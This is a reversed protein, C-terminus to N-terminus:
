LRGKMETGCLPCRKGVIGHLEKKYRELNRKAQCKKEKYEKLRYILEELTGQQNSITKQKKKLSELHGLSPPKRSITEMLLEGLKVIKSLNEAQTVLKLYVRGKHLANKSGTTLGRANDRRSTHQSVLKLIDRLCGLEVAKEQRREQIHEISRLDEDMTEVYALSDQQTTIRNLREEVVEITTRSKHLTSTINRLTNDIGELNVIANLQRSVEGATECFWFPAEHQGQFNIDSLNVIKKIDKPVENRFAKYPKHKNLRYTNISRSRTRTIKNEDITLRVATKDADWNIISDGAPKNRVVWKIARIITSKGATNRGIISNVLPSFSIDLRRHTQFNRIQLKKIM